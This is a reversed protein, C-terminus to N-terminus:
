EISEYVYKINLEISLCKLYTRMKLYRISKMKANLNHKSLQM